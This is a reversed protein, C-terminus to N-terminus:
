EGVAVVNAYEVKGTLHERNPRPVSLAIGKFPYHKQGDAAGGWHELRRSLPITVTEWGGNGKIRKKYQHTQGTSDILRFTLQQAIASRANLQVAKTGAHITLPATALVYPTSRSTSKSFDYQMVGITLDGDTGLTFSGQGTNRVFQWPTGPKFLELDIAKAVAKPQAQAPATPSPKAPLALATCKGVEVDRPIAVYQPAGTLTLHLVARIRQPKGDLGAVDFSRDTEIAVIHDRAEDPAGGAAPATWAVLKRDGDENAFMLVYDLTSDAEIRRVFHHGDLQAFMATCALRVPRPDGEGIIGFAEGDLEYWSTLRVGHMQDILVQRVFHWAQYERARAESGGSWGEAMKKVAFGRETNLMPLDPAGYQRLLGRTRTHGVAFEEPTKVGYPHVSWGRIGTKLIGRKFCSETWKYSPEWYNSVSGALVFCNPDAKLMAPMVAKVFDTYERAFEPSNHKGDKRWFTRVNPENWIEWLVNRDKYRGAMVAAFAAFGRRGAETQIGGRGDDEHLTNGGYLCGIVTLGLEGADAMLRDYVDFTYTGKTKEVADWYIGKRVVRLGLDRVFQLHHRDFNHNKLQVGCSHPIGRAPLQAAQMPIGRALAAAVALCTTFRLTM